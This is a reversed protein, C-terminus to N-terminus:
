SEVLFARLNSALKSLIKGNSMIIPDYEGCSRHSVPFSNLQIISIM